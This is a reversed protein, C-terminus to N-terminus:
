NTTTTSSTEDDAELDAKVADNYDKEIESDKIKMKYKERLEVMAQTTLTSDEDMKEDVLKSIITDKVEKLKPKDKQSKRYIINYGYETKVPESSYKGDELKNAAEWFEDVVEGYTVTLTGGNSATGSDDSYKKALDEFKAGEELKKIIKKAKKLAKKEAAEKEDDTMDDTTEPAILIHKAEIDGYINEEYYKDIEADTLNDEVYNETAVNKKYQIILSDKFADEDDFGAQTLAEEFDMGYNEYQTKYSELQSEAYSEADEDTKIEKNLIYEDIMNILTTEGGQSKLKKYLDEATFKKGDLTAVVEKGNKLTTEHGCGTLGLTLIFACLIILTKKKMHNRGKM